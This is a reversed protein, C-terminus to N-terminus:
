IQQKMFSYIESIYHNQIQLEILFDFIFYKNFIKNGGFNNFNTQNFQGIINYQLYYKYKQFFTKTITQNIIKQLM